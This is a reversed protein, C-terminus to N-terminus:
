TSPLEAAVVKFNRCTVVAKFQLISALSKEASPFRWNIKVNMGAYIKQRAFYRQCVDFCDNNKELNAELTQL